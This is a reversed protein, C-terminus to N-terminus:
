VALMIQCLTILKEMWWGIVKYNKKEDRMSKFKKIWLSREATLSETLFFNGRLKKKNNFYVTLQKVNLRSFKVIIKNNELVQSRDIDADSIDLNLHTKCFDQVCKDTNNKESLGHIVLCNPRSYQEQQEVRKKLKLSEKKILETAQFTHNLSTKFELLMADLVPLAFM